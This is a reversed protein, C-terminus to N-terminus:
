QLKRGLNHNSPPSLVLLQQPLYFCESETLASANTPNELRAVRAAQVLVEELAAEAEEM